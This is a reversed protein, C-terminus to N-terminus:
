VAKAQPSNGFHARALGSFGKTVSDTGKKITKEVNQGVEHLSHGINVGAKALPGGTRNDRKSLSPKLPTFKFRDTLSKHTLKSWRDLPTQPGSNEGDTGVQEIRFPNLAPLSNAIGDGVADLDVVKDPAGLLSGENADASSGPAPVKLLPASGTLALANNIGEGVANVLDTAVTVPHLPQILRAPTPTWSPISRDYGLDVIVRFFPEVVDIMSEPVGLTRLPGFLPLDKTEFFYYTTDGYQSKIPPSTTRDPALSVDLDYMHVYIFGLVANLDAIVNLPYLPFDAFADYQRTIVVTDFPTNTPEPGNFSWDLIPIHLGPFRAFLGGNPVNPDGSLVFDIDPATSGAQYQAALRQKEQNAISAGQSLGYILLDDNGHAAMSKELDAVGAQVSQDITLDFLGSLKWWPEDPWVPSDFGAYPPGLTTALLRLFGTPPWLEEPTTVAVYNIEQGPHTPAIYHSKVVEIYADDPTPVTTGGLILATRDPLPVDSSSASAVPVVTAMVVLVAVGVSVTMRTATGRVNRAGLAFTLAGVRGIYNATGM